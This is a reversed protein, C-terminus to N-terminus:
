PRIRHSVWADQLLAAGVRTAMRACGADTFHVSDTYHQADGPIDDESDVLLAHKERAVERITENYAAFADLLQAPTMYPMYYLSTICARKLEEPTQGRRGRFSFTAVAVRSEQGAADILTELRSRFARRLFVPDFALKGDTAAAQRQAWQVDLNLEFLYWLLSHRGLWSPQGRRGVKLRQQIALRRTDSSIDNTAEYIVVVDPRLKQVRARFNTLMEATTYGPVGANIYDVPQVSAIRVIEAVRHPWTKDPSSVEACFTTSGGLFALRFTGPPKPQTLEPSRFGQSNIVISGAHYGPKPVQLGTVPDPATNSAQPAAVGYRLHQRFRLLGEALGISLACAVLAAMTYTWPSFRVSPGSVGPDIRM